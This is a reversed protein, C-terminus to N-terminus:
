YFADIKNQSSAGSWACAPRTKPDLPGFAWLSGLTVWIDTDCYIDTYGFIKMLWIHTDCDIDTYGFIKILWIHYKM